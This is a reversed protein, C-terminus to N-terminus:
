LNHKKKIRMLKAQTIGLSAAAKRTTGETKLAYTVLKREQEEMIAEFDLGKGQYSEDKVDIINEDYANQYVMKGADIASIVNDKSNIVMRHVANELERVNGPWNYRTLVAYGEESFMKETNYKRNYRALFEKTLVFIDEKRKRLPPVNIQCINLRYYLDERFEGQEVLSLLNVNNACIVRVNVNIQRTGGVRYFQNEQLVRLLKSQMNLSLTGIEDLFLIGNNALEFYGKKGGSSAGTFSGEEYGFFESEALNEQVTACNVKICPKDKRASNKHILQLVKEKGTGTEGQIIVNCDYKAINIAEEVMESTRPSSYIFDEARNEKYHEMVKATRASIGNSEAFKRYLENVKDLESKTERLIRATFSDYGEFYQDLDSAYIQKKMSEAILISESYNNTLTTFYVTGNNKCLFISLTETGTKDDCNIVLDMPETKKALKEYSGIANRVDTFVVEDAYTLLVEEVQEQPITGYNDYDMIVMIHSTEAQVKRIVSGYLMASIMDKAIIAINNSNVALKAIGYFSGAEELAAMTYKLDTTVPEKYATTDQFIIGYGKVKLQGYNFDIEEIKEIYIPIATSTVLCLFEDGISYRREREFVSGMEEIRGYIMGGTETFPNHLKGRKEIIDTFRQIMKSEDYACQNCIQQFSTKEVHIREISIRAERPDLERSNDMKWSTVPVAGEPELVRHIGFRDLM